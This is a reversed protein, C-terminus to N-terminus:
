KIVITTLAGALAQVVLYKGNLKIAVQVRGFPNKDRNGVVVVFSGDPNKFASSFTTKDNNTAWSGKGKKYHDKLIAAGRSLFPGFHRFANFQESPTAANTQSNLEVFGACPFGGSINPQGNEDLIMCWSTFLSCGNNFSGCMLEGWWIADRQYRNIHPGMETMMMPLSPYKDHLPKIMEPTGSYPHWAVAGIANRLAEDNLATAVRNTGDYNHDWLWAKTPLKAAQLKPMLHEVIFEREQEESWLCTPSMRFQETNPENQTTVASIDIGERKYAEIYKVFYNAYAGFYSNLMNGGGINKNSKMWSPPSWPSAFFFIDKNLEQIEKILPIIFDKDKAISFHKMEIDDPTENYTYPHMSYDSSAIQLRAVSLAAGQKTWISKLIKRRTASDIKSLLYCSSEPISVGLGLFEHSKTAGDLDIVNANEACLDSWFNATVERMEGRSETRYVKTDTAFVFTGAVLAAFMISSKM